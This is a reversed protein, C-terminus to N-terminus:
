YYYQRNSKTDSENLIAGLLNAKTGILIEKTKLAKQKTTKGSKVVLITGDCKNALIQSDAVALTPPTDFIIHEYKNQMEEILKDLSKSNLLLSPDPPIPGSTLVDLNPVDTTSITDEISTQKTLVTTIGQINNLKFAYHLTPKRLDTDILLVRKGQQAFVIALNSATTSKGEDPEASTVVITKIERDGSSFQINTRILRYQETIPSKPNIYSILNLNRKKNGRLKKSM